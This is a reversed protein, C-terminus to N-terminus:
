AELGRRRRLMTGAAGFGMIMLAWAAPEPVGRLDVTTSDGIVFEGQTGSFGGAGTDGPPTGPGDSPPAGDETPSSFFFGGGAGAKPPPVIELTLVLDGDEPNWVFDEGTFTLEAGGIGAMNYKGWTGVEQGGISFSIKFTQGDLDGLIGRDLLFQSITMPGSAGASTWTQTFVGKDNFCTAKGCGTNWNVDLTTAASAPAAAAALGAAAAIASITTLLSRM